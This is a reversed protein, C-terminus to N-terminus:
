LKAFRLMHTHKYVPKPNPKPKPNLKPNPIPNDANAENAVM